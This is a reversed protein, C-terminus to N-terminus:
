RFTRSYEQTMAEASPLLTYGILGKRLKLLVSVDNMQSIPDISTIKKNSSNPFLALNCQEELVFTM